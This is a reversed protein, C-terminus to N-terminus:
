VQLFVRIISFRIFRFSIPMASAMVPSTLGCGCIFGRAFNATVDTLGFLAFQQTDPPTPFPPDRLRSTVSFRSCYPFSWIRLRNGPGSSVKKTLSNPPNVPTYGTWDTYPGQAMSRPAAPVTHTSFSPRACAPAPRSRIAAAFAPLGM